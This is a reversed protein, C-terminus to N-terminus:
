IILTRFLILAVYVVMGGEFEKQPMRINGNEDVPPLIDYHYLVHVIANFLILLALDMGPCIRDTGHARIVYLCECVGEVM